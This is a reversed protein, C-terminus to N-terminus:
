LIMGFCGLHRMSIPEAKEDVPFGCESIVATERTSQGGGLETLGSGDLADIITCRATKISREELGERVALPHM